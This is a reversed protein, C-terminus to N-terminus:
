VYRRDLLLSAKIRVVSLLKNRDFQNLSLESWFFILFRRVWGRHEDLRM